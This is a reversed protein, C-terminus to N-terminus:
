HNTWHNTNTFKVPACWCDSRTRDPKSKVPLSHSESSTLATDTKQRRSYFACEMLPPWSFSRSLCGITPAAPHSRSLFASSHMEKTLRRPPLTTETLHLPQRWWVKLPSGWRMPKPHPWQFGMCGQLWAQPHPKVVLTLHSESRKKLPSKPSSVGSAEADQSTAEEGEAEDLLWEEEETVEETDVEVRRNRNLLRCPLNCLLHPELTLERSLTPRESLSWPLIRDAQLKPSVLELWRVVPPLQPVPLPAPCPVLKAQCMAIIAKHKNCEQQAEDWEAWLRDLDQKM